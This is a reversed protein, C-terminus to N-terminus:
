LVVGPKEQDLYEQFYAQLWSVICSFSNEVSFFSKKEKIIAARQKKGLDLSKM